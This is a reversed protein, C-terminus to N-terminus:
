CSFRYTCDRCLYRQVEGSATYRIGDKYVRESGCEPCRVVKEVPEPVKEEVSCVNFYYGCKPCEVMNEFTVKEGGFRSGVRAWILLSFLPFIRSLGGSTRSNLERGRSGLMFGRDRSSGSMQPNKMKAEPLTLRQHRLLHLIFLSM